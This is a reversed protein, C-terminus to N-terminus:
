FPIDDDFGNEEDDLLQAQTPQQQAEEKRSSLIQMAQGVIQTTYRTINNKDTWKKTRLSGEIYVKDGKKIYEAAIEAVKGFFVVQHWETRTQKDGTQKDKWDESTAVSLNCVGNNLAGDAAANGIIIAKNVSRSM